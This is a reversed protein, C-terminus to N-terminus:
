IFILYIDRRIDVFFRKGSRSELNSLKNTLKNTFLIRLHPLFLNAFRITYLAKSVEIEPKLSQTKEKISEVLSKVKSDWSFNQMDAIFSEALLFEPINRNKLSHAYKECVVKVSPHEFISSDKITLIAEFVGLNNVGQSKVFSAASPDKEILDNLSENIAAVDFSPKEEKAGDVYTGANKSTKHGGIGGWSEMLRNAISKSKELEQERLMEHPDKQTQQVTQNEAVQISELIANSSVNSDGKEIKQINSECISRVEPSKTTGRLTKLQTLLDM